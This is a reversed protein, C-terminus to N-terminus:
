AKPRDDPHVWGVPPDYEFPRRIPRKGSPDPVIQGRFVAREIHAETLSIKGDAFPLISRSFNRRPPAVTTLKKDPFEQKLMRATAAQDSDASMLYAHDFRDHRADNFVALALNIDSEKESPRTKGPSCTPCAPIHIYNGPMIEVGVLKLADNFAQHRINKKFDGPYFATCFVAKVLVEDQSPLIMEGLRWFNRWKLHNFGLEDVAHYLNFGDIYLAARKKM